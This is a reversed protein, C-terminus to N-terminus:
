PTHSRRHFNDQVAGRATGPATQERTNDSGFPRNRTTHPPATLVRGHPTNATKRASHAPRHVSNSPTEPATQTDTEPPSPTTTTM